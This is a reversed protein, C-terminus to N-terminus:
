TLTQLSAQLRYRYDDDDDDDDDIMGKSEQGWVYHQWLPVLCGDHRSGVWLGFRAVLHGGSDKVRRWGGVALGKVKSARGRAWAGGKATGFLHQRDADRGSFARDCIGFLLGAARRWSFSGHASQRPFVRLSFVLELSGLGARGSLVQSFIYILFRLHLFGM